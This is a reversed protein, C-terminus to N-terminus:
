RPALRYPRIDDARFVFFVTSAIDVTKAESGESSFLTVNFLTRHFSGAVPRPTM